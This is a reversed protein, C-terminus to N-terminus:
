NSRVIPDYKVRYQLHIIDILLFVCVCVCLSFNYRDISYSQALFFHMFKSIEDDDDDIIFEIEIVNFDM